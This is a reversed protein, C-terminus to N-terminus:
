NSFLDSISAQIADMSQNIAYYVPTVIQQQTWYLMKDRTHVLRRYWTKDQCIDIPSPIYTLANRNSSEAESAKTEAIESIQGAIRSQNPILKTEPINEESVALAIPSSFAIPRLISPGINSFDNLISPELISIIESNNITHQNPISTQPTNVIPTIPSTPNSINPESIPPTPPILQISQIGQSLNLNYIDQQSQQTISSYETQQTNGTEDTYSVRVTYSGSDLGQVRIQYQGINDIPLSLVKHGLRGQSLYWAGPITSINQSNIIQGNPSILEIDAPSFIHLTLHRIGSSLIGTNVTEIKFNQLNLRDLTDRIIESSNYLSGHEFKNKVFTGDGEPRLDYIQQPTNPLNPSIDSVTGDGNNPQEFRDYWHRQGEYEINWWAWPHTLGFIATLPNEQILGIRQITDVNTGIINFRSITKLNSDQGESHNYLERLFYNDQRAIDLNTETRDFPNWSTNLRQTYLAGDFIPLLDRTSPIERQLIDRNQLSFKGSIIGYGRDIMQLYGTMFVGQSIGSPELSGTLVDGGYWRPIAMSAGQNPTGGMIITAIDGRYPIREATNEQTTNGIYDVKDNAMNEIYARTVLGGMSHALINVKRSNTKTKVYNIYQALLYASKQNPQRWDYNFRFYDQNEELENAKLTAIMSDWTVDLGPVRYWNQTSFEDPILEFGQFITDLLNVPTSYYRPFLMQSNISGLIGHVLIIPYRVPQMDTKFWQNYIDSPSNSIPSITCYNLAPCHYRGRISVRGKEQSVSITQANHFLIGDKLAIYTSIALNQDKYSRYSTSLNGQLQFVALESKQFYFIQNGERVVQTSYTSSMNDQWDIGDIDQTDSIEVSMASFKDLNQAVSGSEAYYQTGSYSLGLRSLIKGISAHVEYIHPVLRAYSTGYELKSSKNTIYGNGSIKGFLLYNDKDLEIVKDIWHYQNVIVYPTPVSDVNGVAEINTIRSSLQSLISRDRSELEPIVYESETPTIQRMLQTPRQWYVTEWPHLYKLRKNYLLPIYAYSGKHPTGIFIVNEINDQYYRALYDRVILGGVGYGILNVKDDGSEAQTTNIKDRIDQSIQDLSQDTYYPIIELQHNNLAFEEILPRFTIDRTAPHNGLFIDPIIISVGQAFSNQPIILGCIVIISSIISYKLSM